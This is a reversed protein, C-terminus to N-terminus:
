QHVLTSEVGCVAEGDDEAVIAAALRAIAREVEARLDDCVSCDAAPPHSADENAARWAAVAERAALEIQM